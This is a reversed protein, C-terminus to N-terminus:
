HTHPRMKVDQHSWWARPGFLRYYCHAPQKKQYTFFEVIKKRRLGVRNGSMIGPYKDV